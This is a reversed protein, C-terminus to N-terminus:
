AFRTARTPLAFPIRAPELVVPRDLDQHASGGRGEESADPEFAFREPFVLPM